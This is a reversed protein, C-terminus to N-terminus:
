KGLKDYASEIPIMGYRMRHEERVEGDKFLTPWELRAATGMRRPYINGEDAVLEWGNGEEGERFYDCLGVQGDKVENGDWGGIDTGELLRLVDHHLTGVTYEYGSHLYVIDGEPGDYVLLHLGGGNDELVDFRVEM